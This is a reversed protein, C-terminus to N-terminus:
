PGPELTISQSISLDGFLDTGAHPILDKWTGNAKASEDTFEQHDRTTVSGATMVRSITNHRSEYGDKRWMVDFTIPTTSPACTFSGTENDIVCHVVFFSDPTTTILRASSATFNFDRNPITGTGAYYLIRSPDDRDPFVYGFDLYTTHTTEDRFADVFGASDNGYLSSFALHSSTKLTALPAAEARPLIAFLTSLPPNAQVRTNKFLSSNEVHILFGSMNAASRGDWTGNVTASVSDFRGSSRTIVSGIIDVTTANSRDSSDDNALWSLDFTRPDTPECTYEGTENDVVCRTIPYTDPTTLALHAFTSNTTFANAPIEAEESVIYITQNSNDPDPYVHAFSLTTTGTLEDQNVVVSGNEPGDNFFFEATQVKGRTVPDPAGNAAYVQKVRYLMAFLALSIAVTVLTKSFSMHIQAKMRNEEQDTSSFRMERVCNRRISKGKV